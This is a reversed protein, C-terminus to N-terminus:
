AAIEQLQVPVWGTGDPTAKTVRYDRAITEGDKTIRLADGRALGPADAELVAAVPDADNVVDGAFEGFSRDFIVRLGPVPAGVGIGGPWHIAQANALHVMCATSVMAELRAFSNLAAATAM